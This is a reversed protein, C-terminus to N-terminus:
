LWSITLTPWLWVYHKMKVALPVVNYKRALNEPILNLAEPTPAQILVNLRAVSSSPGTVVPKVPASEAIKATTPEKSSQAPASEAIKATTPEKSPQEPAKKAADLEAAPKEPTAKGVEFVKIQQKEAFQRAEHSLKPSAILVSRTIGTDQARADLLSVLEMDVEGDASLFDISMPPTILGDDIYALIDFTHETGSKGKVKAKEEIRYGREALSKLLQAKSGFEVPKHHKAAHHRQM